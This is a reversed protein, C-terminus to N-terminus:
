GQLDNKKTIVVEVEVMDEGEVVRMIQRSFAKHIILRHSVNAAFWLVATKRHVHWIVNTRRPSMATISIPIVITATAGTVTGQITETTRTCRSSFSTKIIAALLANWACSGTVPPNVHSLDERILKLLQSAHLATCPTGALHGPTRRQSICRRAHHM